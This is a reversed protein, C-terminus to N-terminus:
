CTPHSRQQGRAHVRLRTQATAWSNSACSQEHVSNSAPELKYRCSCIVQRMHQLARNFLSFPYQLLTVEDHLHIVSALLGDTHSANRQLRHLTSILVALKSTTPSYSHYHQLKLFKQRGHEYMFPVNKNFPILGLTNVGYQIYSELFTNQGPATSAQPELELSSDYSSLLKNVVVLQQNSRNINNLPTATIIDLDDMYRVGDMMIPLGRLARGDYISAFFHYESYILTICALAPSLYGGMPAGINQKLITNVGVRFYVHQLDFEVVQFVDQIALSLYEYRNYSRGFHFDKSHRKHVTFMHYRHGRTAYIDLLWLVSKLISEHTLNTFMNKVDFSYVTFLLENKSGEAACLQDYIHTIRDKLKSMDYLGCHKYRQPLLNWLQNLVVGSCHLLLKFPHFAYSVIPRDRTYDKQKLLIYAYPLFTKIFDCTGKRKLHIGFRRWRYRKFAQQFLRWIDEATLTTHEYHEDAIYSKHMHQDYLCPCMIVLKNSNKDLPSFIYETGLTSKLNTIDTSNVPLTPLSVHCRQHRLRIMFQEVLSIMLPLQALPSRALREPTASKVRFFYRLFTVYSTLAVELDTLMHGVSPALINSANISLVQQLVTRTHTMVAPSEALTTPLPLSQVNSEDYVIRQNNCWCHYENDNDHQKGFEQCAYKIHNCLRQKITKNKKWVMYFSTQLIDKLATPVILLHNIATILRRIDQKHVLSNFPLSLHIQKVFPMHFRASLASMIRQLVLNYHNSNSNYMKNLYYLMYMQHLPLTHFERKYAHPHHMLHRIMKLIQTRESSHAQLQIRLPLMHCSDSGSATVAYHLYRRLHCVNIMFTDRPQTIDHTCWAYHDIATCRDVIIYSDAYQQAILDFNTCDLQGATYRVCVQQAAKLTNLLQCLDYVTAHGYEYTSLLSRHPVTCSNHHVHKNTATHASPTRHITPLAHRTRTTFPINTHQINLAPNFHKILKTEILKRDHRSIDPSSVLPIIVCGSSGYSRLFHTLRPRILRRTFLPRTREGNDMHHTYHHAYTTASNHHEQFRQCLSSQTEGIYTARHDPHLIMYVTSSHYRYCSIFQQFQTCHQLSPAHRFVAAALKFARTHHVDCLLCYLLYLVSKYTIVQHFRQEFTHLFPIVTDTHLSHLSAEILYNCLQLYSQIRHRLLQQQLQLLTPYLM